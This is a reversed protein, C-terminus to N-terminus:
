RGIYRAINFGSEEVNNLNIRESTEVKVNNRREAVCKDAIMAKVANIDAKEIIEAFEATAMEEETFYGSTKAYETVEDQKKKLEALEQERKIEALESEAKELEVIRAKLEAIENTMEIIANNKEAIVADVDVVPETEANDSETATEEKVEPEDEVVPEEVTETVEAEEAVPTEEVAEEVTEVVTEEVQGTESEVKIEENESIMTKDVNEGVKNNKIDHSLAVALAMEDENLTAYELMGAGPVAGEVTSGLICNGLFEVDKLIKGEDTIEYDNAALEWSSSVKGESWLKDLVEFYEPYRDSWLKTSITIWEKGDITEINSDVVSGIAVTDFKYRKFQGYADTEVSVEHGGFDDPNGNRDSLLKAVIPYGIISKHCKYATERPMFRDNLDWQNIESIGWKAMKHYKTQESSLPKSSLIIKEM